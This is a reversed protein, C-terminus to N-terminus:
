NTTHNRIQKYNWFESFLEGRARGGMVQVGGGPQLPEFGITEHGIDSAWLDDGLHVIEAM